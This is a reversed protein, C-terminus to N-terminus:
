LLDNNKRDCSLKRVEQVLEKLDPDKGMLSEASTNQISSANLVHVAYWCKRVFVNEQSLM